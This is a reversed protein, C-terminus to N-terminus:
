FCAGIGNTAVAQQNFNKGGNDIGFLTHLYLGSQLLLSGQPLRYNFFIQLQLPETPLPKQTNEFMPNINFGVVKGNMKEKNKQQTWKNFDFIGDDKFGGSLSWWDNGLFTGNMEKGTIMEDKAVFINNYFHFGSNNNEPAYSIAAGKDNYITNNYFFCNKLQATDYSNNWIFVGAHAQSTTGDNISICFRVTNNYWNSAGAYQFLGFASGENEYSLCYQILSNTTGGDFDYGGGDAAGKATKNRYSICHQITVSDAEYCWIGVPGNGVRPMDWGNNTATSYEIMVNKCLGVIIGNGSHNGFNTPDGPNKEAKCYGIYINKCDNKSQQGSVCIGAFGNDHAYVNTVHVDSSNYILLGSKQFGKVDISDITINKAGSIFVGDKTNGDKRGAGIFNIDSISIYNTHDVTLATENGANIAANGNGYSTIIVPREKTGSSNSDIIINGTFVQSGEFYVTDGANLHITNLRAITKWPAAENGKNSDNGSVSIYYANGSTATKNQTCAFLMIIFCFCVTYVYNKLM